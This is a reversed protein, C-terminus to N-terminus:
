VLTIKLRNMSEMKAHKGYNNLFTESLTALTLTSVKMHEQISPLFTSFNPKSFFLWLPEFHPTTLIQLKSWQM